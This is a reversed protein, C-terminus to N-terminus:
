KELGKAAEITTMHGGSSRGTITHLPQNADSCRTTKSQQERHARLVPMRDDCRALASHSSRTHHITGQDPDPESLAALFSGLRQPPKGSQAKPQEEWDSSPRVVSQREKLLWSFACRVASEM